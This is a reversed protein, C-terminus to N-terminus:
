TGVSTSKRVDKEEQVEALKHNCYPCINVLRTKGSSFDFMILPRSFFKSCSPCSIAVVDSEKGALKKESAKVPSVEPRKPEAFAEEKM